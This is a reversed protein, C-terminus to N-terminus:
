EVLARITLVGTAGSALTAGNLQVTCNSTATCTAPMTTITGGTFVTQSAGAFTVENPLLDLLSINSASVEPDPNTVSVQYQMCAGPVSYQSDDGPDAAVACTGTDVGNTAIVSITKVATLPTLETFFLELARVTGNDGGTFVDCITFTWIGQADEGDFGSLAGGESQVSMPPGTVLQNVAHAGTDVVIAAEDDFRVNYNDQSGSYPGTLLGVTTGNPSSISLNTDTRWTHSAVFRVDLDGIAFSDPVNITMILPTGCPSTFGYGTATTNIYPGGVQAVATDAMVNSVLLASALHVFLRRYNV